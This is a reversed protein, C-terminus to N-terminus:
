VDELDRKAAEKIVNDLWDYMSINKFKRAEVALDCAEKSVGELHGYYRTRHSGGRVGPIQFDIDAHPMGEGVDFTIVYFVGGIIWELKVNRAEIPLYELPLNYKYHPNSNMLVKGFDTNRLWTPM